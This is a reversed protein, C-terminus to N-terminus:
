RREFVGICRAADTAVIDDRDLLQREFEHEVRQAQIGPERNRIELCAAAQRTRCYGRLESRCLRAAPEFDVSLANARGLESPSKEVVHDCRKQGRAIMCACSRM